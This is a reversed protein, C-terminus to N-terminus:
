HARCREGLLAAKRTAATTEPEEFGCSICVVITSGFPRNVTDTRGCGGCPYRTEAYTRETM